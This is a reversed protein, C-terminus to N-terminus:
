VILIDSARLNVDTGFDALLVAGGPNNGNKDFWLTDDTTRFVFYDNADHARNDVRAIFYKAGLQGVKLNAFTEGELCIKDGRQFDRITDGGESPSRFYFRDAGVGGALKDRGAGGSLFDSGDGGFLSDVGAKGFVSDRGANGNLKDNGAGGLIKDNGVHGYIKDNGAGGIIQDNGEGGNALDNGTGTGILDNGTGGYIKDSGSKDLTVNDNGGQLYITLPGASNDRYLHDSFKSGVIKWGYAADASRQSSLKDEYELSHDINFDDLTSGAVVFVKSYEGIGQSSRPSANVAFVTSAMTQAIEQFVNETNWTYSEFDSQFNELSRKLAALERQHDKLSTGTLVIPERSLLASPNLRLSGFDAPLGFVELVASRVRESVGDLPALTQDPNGAYNPDMFETLVRLTSDFVDVLAERVSNVRELVDFYSGLFYSSPSGGDDISKRMSSLREVIGSEVVASSADLWVDAFESYGISADQGIIFEETPSGIPGFFNFGLYSNYDGSSSQLFNFLNAGPDYPNPPLKPRDPDDPPLVPGVPPRDGGPVSETPCTECVIRTMITAGSRM